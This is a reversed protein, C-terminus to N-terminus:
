APFGSRGNATVMVCGQSLMGDYSLRGPAAPEALKGARLM